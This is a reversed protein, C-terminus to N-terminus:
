RELMVLIIISIAIIASIFGYGWAILGMMDTAIIAMDVMLIGAIENYKFMFSAILIIFFGLLLGLNGAASTFDEIKFQIQNVLSTTGDRTILTRAIYTGTSNGTLDCSLIASLLSSNM